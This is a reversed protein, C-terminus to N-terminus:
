LGLVVFGNLNKYIFFVNGVARSENVWALMGATLKTGKKRTCANRDRLLRKFCGLFTYSSELWCKSFISNMIVPSIPSYKIWAGRGSQPDAFVDYVMRNEDSHFKCLLIGYSRFYSIKVSNKSIYLYKAVQWTWGRGLPSADGFEVLSYPLAIGNAQEVIRIRKFPFKFTWAGSDPSADRSNAHLQCPSM